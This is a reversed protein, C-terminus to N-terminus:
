QETKLLRQDLLSIPAQAEDIWDLEIGDLDEASHISLGGEQSKSGRIDKLWNILYKSGCKM